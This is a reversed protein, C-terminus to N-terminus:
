KTPSALLGPLRPFQARAATLVADHRLLLDERVATGWRVEAVRAALERALDEALADDIEAAVGLRGRVRALYPDLVEHRWREPRAIWSAREADSGSGGAAVSDAVSEDFLSDRAIAHWAPRGPPPPLEVDPRVGGGGRVARGADTHFRVLTDSPGQGAMARYADAALGAYPRQIVRGSPSLVRGVTLWVVDGSVLVFPRQLLAKGFTRQGVVLARDHDQLSAALAEAASASNADVLVILPLDRFRGDVRTAYSHELDGSRGRTRFVVAFRPLFLSAVGVAADVSGGPNGRLDLVLRTAGQGTLRRVADEVDREAGPAFDALTVFGTTDDVLRRVTVSRHPIVERRVTVGYREPELRPGRELTLALRSGPRGALALELEKADRGATTTDDVAVLRDGPAIGKRAAPGGPVVALVTPIRDVTELVLGVSGLEGRAVAQEREVAARPMFRSHPDLARLVGEVGARVVAEAGVSDVYHLRIHNLVDAFTQLAEYNSRAPEQATAPATGVVLASLLVGLHPRV